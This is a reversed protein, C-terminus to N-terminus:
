EPTVLLHRNPSFNYAVFTCNNSLAHSLRAWFLGFIASCVSSSPLTVKRLVVGPTAWMEQVGVTISSQLTYQHGTTGFASFCTTPDKTAQM